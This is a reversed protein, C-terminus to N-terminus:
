KKLSSVDKDKVDLNAAQVQSYWEGEGVIEEERKQLGFYM